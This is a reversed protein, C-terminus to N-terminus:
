AKNNVSSKKANSTDTRQLDTKNQAEEEEEEEEEGGGGGGGERVGGERGRIRRSMLIVKVPVKKFM